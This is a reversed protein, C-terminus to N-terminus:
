FFRKKLYAWAYKFAPSLKVLTLLGWLIGFWLWDKDTDEYPNVITDIFDKICTGIMLALYGWDVVDTITKTTRLWYYGILLYPMAFKITFMQYVLAIKADHLEDTQPEGPMVWEPILGLVNMFAFVINLTIAAEYTKTSKLSM